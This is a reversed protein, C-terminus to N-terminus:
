EMGEVMKGMMEENMPGVIKHQILGNTDIMYTTPITFARYEDGIDGKEDMLIPFTLEYGDVFQQVAKEGEDQSTLNVALIEVKEKKANKEYYQEMHPMEAKCPPCWTAWFNLIVKKGQYDSLKVEEGDLTTLTFDPALDGQTLGQKADSLDMSEKALQDAEERAKKEQQDQFLNVLFIGILLAVIALAFNRKNL